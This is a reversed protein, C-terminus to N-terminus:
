PFGLERIESPFVDIQLGTDNGDWARLVPLCTVDLAIRPRIGRGISEETSTNRLLSAGERGPGLLHEGRRDFDRLDVIAAEVVESVGEGRPEDHLAYVKERNLLEATPLGQQHNLPVSM